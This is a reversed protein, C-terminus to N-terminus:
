EIEEPTDNFDHDLDISYRYKLSPEFILDFERGVPYAHNREAENDHDIQRAEIQVHAIRNCELEIWRNVEGNPIERNHWSGVRVHM